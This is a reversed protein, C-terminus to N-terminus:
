QKVAEPTFFGIIVHRASFLSVPKSHVHDCLDGNSAAVEVPLTCLLIHMAAHTHLCLM